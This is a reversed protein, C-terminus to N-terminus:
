LATPARRSNTVTPEDTMWGANPASLSRREIAQSIGTPTANAATPTPRAPTAGFKASVARETPM